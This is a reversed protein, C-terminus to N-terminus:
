ERAQLGASVERPLQEMGGSLVRDPMILASRKSGSLLLHINEQKVGDAAAMLTPRYRSNLRPNSTSSVGGVLM